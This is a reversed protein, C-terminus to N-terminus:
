KVSTGQHFVLRWTGSRQSWISSRLSRRMVGPGDVRVAAYTVLATEPSLARVEFRSLSWESPKEEALRDIVEARTWVRGSSGVESFDEDLLAMVRERSSRVKPDLLAFELERLEQEMGTPYAHAGRRRLVGGIRRCLIAWPGRDAM